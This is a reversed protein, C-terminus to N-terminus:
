GKKDSPGLNSLRSRANGSDEMLSRSNGLFSFGVNNVLVKSELGFRGEETSELRGSELSREGIIKSIAFSGSSPGLLASNAGFQRSAMVGNKPGYGNSVEYSALIPRNLSNNNSKFSNFLLNASDSDQVSKMSEQNKSSMNSFIKNVSRKRKNKLAQLRAKVAESAKKDKNPQNQPGQNQDM